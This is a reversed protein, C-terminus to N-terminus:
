DGRRSCQGTCTGDKPGPEHPCRARVPKPKMMDSAMNLVDAPNLGRRQIEEMLDAPVLVPYKNSPTSVPMEPPPSWPAEVPEPRVPAAPSPVPMPASSAPAPSVPAVPMPEAAEQEYKELWKHFREMRDPRRNYKKRAARKKERRKKEVNAADMRKLSVVISKDVLDLMQEIQEREEPSTNENRWAEILTRNIEKVAM